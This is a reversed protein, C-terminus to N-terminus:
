LFAGVLERGQPQKQLFVPVVKERLWASFDALESYLSSVELVYSLVMPLDAFFNPKNDRLGLRAFIGLVKIHRQAGMLDFWRVWQKFQAEDNVEVGNMQLYSKVWGIVRDRPWQVYCDKLLSVLDYTQPGWVADQFDIMGLADDMVMLNRSHYDRHVFCQPQELASDLLLEFTSHILKQEAEPVDISLYRGLFWEPFLLMEDLLKSRSYAPIDKGQPIVLLQNLGGMARNYWTDVTEETLLPLLLQDGFDELLLFGLSLDSAIVAPVPAGQALMIRGIDIFPQSDEKDPPADMVVLTSQSQGLAVDVPQFFEARFYRRFSADDSLPVVQKLNSPDIGLQKVQEHVWGQLQDFRSDM